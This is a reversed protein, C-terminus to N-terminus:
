ALIQAAAAIGVPYQVILVHRLLLVIRDRGDGSGGRLEPAVPGHAHDANGPAAEGGQLRGGANFAM